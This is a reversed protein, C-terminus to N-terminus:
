HIPVEFNECTNGGRADRGNEGDGGSRGNRIIGEGLAEWEQGDNSVNGGNNV